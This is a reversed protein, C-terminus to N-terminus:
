GIDGFANEQIYYLATQVIRRQKATGVAEGPTGYRASSRRKVEVFVVAGDMRAILDIEGGPRRYNRGLVEAGKWILFDAAIEEGAAGTARKNM